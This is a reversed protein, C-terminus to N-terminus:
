ALVWSSPLPLTRKTSPAEPWMAPTMLGGALPLRLWQTWRCAAPRPSAQNSLAVSCGPLQHGSQAGPELRVRCAPAAGLASRRGCACASRVRARAAVDLGLGSGMSRPSKGMAMSMTMTAAARVATPLNPPVSALVGAGLEAGGDDLLQELAGPELAVLDALDDQALHQLGADALVRRALRDDLGAQGLGHRRHGDVLDAARAQLGHHQSRLGHAVAVALDHDGAALLVHAQAGCTSCPERSPWRM